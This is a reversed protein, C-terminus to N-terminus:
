VARIDAEIAVVNAGKKLLERTLVGTGPGIELVIDGKEVEGAEAMLTPVHTFFLM